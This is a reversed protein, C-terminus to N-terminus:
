AHGSYGVLHCPDVGLISLARDYKSDLERDFVIEPNAPCSLWGNAQIESELQGPAWSAYGLALMAHDPGSGRAMAKLIDITNTLCVGQNIALTSSGGSYDASHLVFGRARAVPGGVQVAMSLIEAPIEDEAADDLVRLEKLLKPFSVNDARQNIILGMAGESSHLCMYIVSRAFRKDTMSPMAILLQGDLFNARARGRRKKPASVSM